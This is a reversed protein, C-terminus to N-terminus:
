SRRRNEILIQAVIKDIPFTVTDQSFDQWAVWRFSQRIGDTELFDFPRLAIKVTPLDLPLVKYYISIVQVAADFASAQFFDTTYIHEQVSIRQGLEEMWERALCEKPGEGLKLGGGPFKTFRMGYEEEDSVLVGRQEDCLLGYVRLTLSNVTM